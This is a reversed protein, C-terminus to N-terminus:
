RRAGRVRVDVSRSLVTLKDRPDRWSLRLSGSAPIRVKVDLVGSGRRTRVTRLTRQKGRSRLVITVRQIKGGLQRAPRVLGWVRLTGGRSVTAKPLWVPLQYATFSPKRRGNRFKLGTQFSAGYGVKGDRGPRPADDVLLFQAFTRVGPNQRAIFEAQNLYAAQERLSVGAPNPPTTNYGFETLYLPLGAAPRGYRTFIRRLTSSLRPLNAITAYDPDKLRVSPAFTLEYPHHGYGTASFLGPHAAAFAASDGATEPCGRVKAATGSFPQLADDVCYLQRIFRLAKMARTTGRANLGKPATEGVLITDSGHGSAQLGTFAADVLGRYIRPAAEVFDGKEGATWQPTLWGAQNPENWISYYDVRPLADGSPAPPSPPCNNLVVCFPPNQQRTTARTTTTVPAGYTGSYRTGVAQVFKAFEQPDPEFTNAIDARPADGTAWLPAPSTINFNVAIGRAVALRVAQDYRNWSGPPYAAPDTADFAPRTQSGADPAVTAWFVSVRIRDVGLKQLTDLTRTTGATTNFILSNDDQFTSEQASAAGATAPAALLLLCIFPLLPVRRRPPMAPVSARSRVPTRRGM